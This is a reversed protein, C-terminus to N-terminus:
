RSFRIVSSSAIGVVVAVGIVSGVSSRLAMTQTGASPAMPRSKKGVRVSTWRSRAREKAMPVAVSTSAKPTKMHYPKRSWLPM